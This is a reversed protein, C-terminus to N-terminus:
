MQSLGTENGCSVLSHEFIHGCFCFIPLGVCCLMCPLHYLTNKTPFTLVNVVCCWVTPYVYLCFTFSDNQLQAWVVQVMVLSSLLDHCCVFRAVKYQLTLLLSNRSKWNHRMTKYLLLYFRSFLIAFLSVSPYLIFICGVTLCNRYWIYHLVWYLTVKRLVLFVQQKLVCVKVVHRQVNENGLVPKGTAKNLCM